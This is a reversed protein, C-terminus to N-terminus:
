ITLNVPSFNTPGYLEVNHITQRYAEMLGDVGSVEPQYFIFFVRLFVGLFYM